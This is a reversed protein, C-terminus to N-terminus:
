LEERIDDRIEMYLRGLMNGGAHISKPRFTWLPNRMVGMVCEYLFANDTRLLIDRYIKNRFKERLISRMIREQEEEKMPPYQKIDTVKVGCWRAVVSLRARQKSKCKLAFANLILMPVAGRLAVGDHTCLTYITKNDKPTLERILLKYSKEPMRRLNRIFQVVRPCDVVYQAWKSIASGYLISLKHTDDLARSNICWRHKGHKPIPAPTYILEPPPPPLPPLTCESSYFPSDVGDLCSPFGM